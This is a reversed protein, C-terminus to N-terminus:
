TIGARSHEASMPRALVLFGDPSWHSGWRTDIRAAWLAPWLFDRLVETVDRLDVLFPAALRGSFAVWQSRKQSDLAFENTLAIPLEAPLATQRRDFTARLALRLADGEFSMRQAMTYIDFLDKMRSNALGLRVLAETKEAISTEPACEM